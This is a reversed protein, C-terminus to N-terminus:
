KVSEQEAEIVADVAMVLTSALDDYNQWADNSFFNTLM